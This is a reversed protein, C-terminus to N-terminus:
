VCFLKLEVRLAILVLLSSDSIFKYFMITTGSHPEESISAVM